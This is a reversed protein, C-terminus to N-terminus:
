NEKTRASHFVPECARRPREPQTREGPCLTPPLSPVRSVRASRKTVPSPARHSELCKFFGVRKKSKMSSGELPRPPSPTSGPLPFPTPPRQPADGAGCNQTLSVHATTFVEVRRYNIFLGAASPSTPGGVDSRRQPEYNKRGPRTSSLPCRLFLGIFVLQIWLASQFVLVSALSSM